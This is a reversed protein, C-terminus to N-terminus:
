ANGGTKKDRLRRFPGFVAAWNVRFYYKFMPCMDEEDLICDPYPCHFCDRDCTPKNPTHM